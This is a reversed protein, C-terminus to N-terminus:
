WKYSLGWHKSLNKYVWTSSSTLYESKNLKKLVEERLLPNEDTENDTYYIYKTSLEDYLNQFIVKENENIITNIQTCYDGEYEYEWNKFDFDTAFEGKTIDFIESHCFIFNSLLFFYIYLIFRM